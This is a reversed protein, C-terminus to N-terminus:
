LQSILLLSVQGPFKMASIVICAYLAVHPVMGTRKADSDSKNPDEQVNTNIM